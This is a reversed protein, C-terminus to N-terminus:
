VPSLPIFQHVDSIIIFFFVEETSYLKCVKIINELTTLGIFLFVNNYSKPSLHFLDLVKDVGERFAIHIPFKLLTINSWTVTSFLSENM